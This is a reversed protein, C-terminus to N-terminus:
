ITTSSRPSIASRPVWSSSAAAPPRYAASNAWTPSAPASSHHAWPPQDTQLPDVVARSDPRRPRVARDQPHMHPRWRPAPSQRHGGTTEIASGPVPLLGEAPPARSYHQPGGGRTLMSLRCKCRCSSRSAQADFGKLPEHDRRTEPVSRPAAVASRQRGRPGTERQASRASPAASSAHRAPWARGRRWRPPRRLGPFLGERHGAPSRRRAHRHRGPSVRRHRRRRRARRQVRIM